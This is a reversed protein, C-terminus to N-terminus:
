QTERQNSSYDRRMERVIRRSHLTKGDLQRDIARGLIRKAAALTAPQQWDFRDIAILIEGSYTDNDRDESGAVIVGQDVAVCYRQDAQLPAGTEAEGSLDIGFGIERLFHWEFERLIAALNQHGSLRRIAEAYLAFLEPHPDFRHTLKLMLENLYFGCMLADNMLPSMTAAGTEADSMTALERGAVWSLNLACFPQLLGRYRSKPRKVGRAVMALRGYDRSFVEIIQSSDRFDRRHLVWCPQLKIRESVSM